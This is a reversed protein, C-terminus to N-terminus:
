QAEMRGTKGRGGNARPGNAGAKGRRAPKGIGNRPGDERRPGIGNGGHESRREFAALTRQAGGAPGGPQARVPREPEQHGQGGPGADQHGERDPDRTRRRPGTRGGPGAGAGARAGTDDPGNTASRGDPAEIDLDLLGAGGGLTREAEAAMGYGRSPARPQVGGVPRGAGRVPPHSRWTTRTTPRDGARAEAGAGAAAAVARGRAPRSRGRGVAAKGPAPAATM